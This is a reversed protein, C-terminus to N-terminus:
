KGMAPIPRFSVRRYTYFITGEHEILRLLGNELFPKLKRQVEEEKLGMMRVLDNLSCPRRKLIDFIEESKLIGRPTFSNFGPPSKLDVCEPWLFNQIERLRDQTVAKVGLYAPPRSVTMVHVRHPKIVEIAKKLAELHQPQDNVGDVILIELWFQVNPYHNRFDMMGLIVNEVAIWPAPQNVSQFESSDAADLSPLVIDSLGLDMQVTPDNM